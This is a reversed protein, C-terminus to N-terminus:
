RAIRFKVKNVYYSPVKTGDALEAPEFRAKKIFTECVLRNFDPEQFHSLSTCKTVHGTADVLARVKVDSIRNLALMSRPYDDPDFWAAPNPSWVPRAVREELDPDVGWDRLSDRNCKDFAEVAAAMSGTDLIVPRSARADVEIATTSAIFERRRAKRDAQEALSEAPPRLGPHARPDAAKKEDAAVVDDPLLRVTSYLIMPLNKDSSRGFLGKLPKSQLPVFRAPVEESLSELPRGVLVMDLSGPGESELAFTTEDKGTGFHRILRCSNEAYDVDWPTSPALHIPDAGNALSPVLALAVVFGSTRM